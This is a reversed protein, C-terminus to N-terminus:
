NKSSGANLVSSMRQASPTHDTIRASDGTIM